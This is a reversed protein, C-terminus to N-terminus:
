GHDPGGVILVWAMLFTTTSLIGFVMEDANIIGLVFLVLILLMIGGTLELEGM